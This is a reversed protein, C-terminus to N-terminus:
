PLHVAEQLAYVDEALWQRREVQIPLSPDVGHGTSNQGEKDDYNEEAITSEFEKVEHLLM